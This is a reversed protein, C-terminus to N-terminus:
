ASSWNWCGAGLAEGRWTGISQLLFNRFFAGAGSFISLLLVLSYPPDFIISFDNSCFIYSMGWFSLLLLTLRGANLFGIM